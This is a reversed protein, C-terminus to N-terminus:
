EMCEVDGVGYYLRSDKLIAKLTSVIANTEDKTLTTKAPFHQNELVDNDDCDCKM